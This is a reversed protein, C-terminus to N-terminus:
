SAKAKRGLTKKARKLHLEIPRPTKTTLVAVVLFHSGSFPDVGGSEDLFGYRMLPM